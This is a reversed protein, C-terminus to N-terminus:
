ISQELIKVLTQASKQYNFKKLRKQGIHVLKERIERNKILKILAKKIDLISYPNVLIAGKGAVEPLSARNSLIAPVKFNFTELVPIGFGEWFSVLAFIDAHKFIASLDKDPVHGLFKIRSHNKATALIEDAYWGMKGVIILSYKEKINKPLALFAKILGQFNKRPEITGVSLIYPKNINYKKLISESNQPTELYKIGPYIIKIKNRKVYPFQRLLDRKTFKSISILIPCKLVRPLLIKELLKAKKQSKFDSRFVALDHIVPVSKKTLVAPLIYSTPCFVFDIGDIKIQILVWLYWFLTNKSQWNFKFPLKFDPKNKAYIFYLNNDQNKALACLLNYGFEEKGAKSKILLHHADIGIRKPVFKTKKNRQYTKIAQNFALFPTILAKPHAKGYYFM